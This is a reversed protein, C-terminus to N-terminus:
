NEIPTIHFFPPGKRDFITCLITLSQVEPHLRETYVNKSYEEGGREMYIAPKFQVVNMIKITLVM